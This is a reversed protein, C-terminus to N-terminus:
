YDTIPLCYDSTLLRYINFPCCPVLVIAEAQKKLAFDIADDTATIAAVDRRLDTSMLEAVAIGATAPDSRRVWALAQEVDAPATIM